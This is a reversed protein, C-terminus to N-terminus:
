RGTFKGPRKEFFAAVAEKHDGSLSALAYQDGDMYSAASDGATAIETIARKAM